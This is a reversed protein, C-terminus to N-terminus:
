VTNENENENEKPTARFGEMYSRFEPSFAYPNDNWWSYVGRVNMLYSFGKEEAQLLNRAGTGNSAAYFLSDFVHFFARLLSDFREREVDALSSRDMLGTVWIQALEADQAMAINGQNLSDTIAHHSASQIAQANQRVQIALYALTAIVAIAGLIEGIAGIAEWNM